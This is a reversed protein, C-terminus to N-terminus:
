RRLVSECGRVTDQSEVRARDYGTGCRIVDRGPGGYLRDDGPGGYLCDQGALGHVVDAGAGAVIRDGGVTGVLREGSGDGRFRAACRAEARLVEANWVFDVGASGGSYENGAADPLSAVFRFSRRQGGAIGGLFITRLSDLSGDFVVAGGSSQDYIQLRLVAALRGGGPGPGGNLNATGLTLAGGESGGSLLSVSGAVADGPALNSASLVAGGHRSDTISLAGRSRELRTDPPSPSKLDAAQAAAAYIGALGICILSCDRWKKVALRAITGAMGILPSSFPWKNSWGAVM